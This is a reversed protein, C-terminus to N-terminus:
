AWALDPVGKSPPWSRATMSSTLAEPAMKSGATMGVPPHCPRVASSSECAHARERESERPARIQVRVCLTFMQLTMFFNVSLPM